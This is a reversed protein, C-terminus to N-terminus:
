TRCRSCLGFLTLEHDVPVFGYASAVAHRREDIVDCSFEEVGRCKVCVMHDHRHEPAPEYLSQNGEFHRRVLLGAAELDRLIRYVTALGPAEGRRQLRYFIEDAALHPQEQLLKLVRSRPSGGRKELDMKSM